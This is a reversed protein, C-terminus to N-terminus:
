HLALSRLRGRRRESRRKLSRDISMRARQCCRYIARRMVSARDEINISTGDRLRARVHCVKDRGGKPGNIDKLIVDVKDIRDAYLGLRREVQNIISSGSRPPLSVHHTHLQIKM